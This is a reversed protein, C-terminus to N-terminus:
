TASWSNRHLVATRPPRAGVDGALGHAANGARAAAILREASSPPSMEDAACIRNRGNKKARYLAADARALLAHIDAVPDPSCAMGISVSGGIPRGALQIAAAEFNVRIREAIKEALELAGPVIAAFEEGGIRGILDSARMNARAINAFLRLVDDGAAHGFRDNISKFHDLDFMLVTVPQQRRAQHACLSKAGDLFARRNILGTLHDTSAANKLVHVHYDKVLLLVIFATGVTYLMTELVFLGFWGGAFMSGRAQPSFAQLVFPMLFIAAHLLPVVIAASRSYFSKRRERWLECATFFAYVSAIIAGLVIRSSEQDAFLPMQCAILWLIAGAFAALPLIRRGHFLRVGNWIMGCAVFILAGPSEAPVPLLSAPASWLAMSSGGILYATGWWALARMSREQLWAFILFLGLLVAIATAVFLLTPIDLATSFGASQAFM